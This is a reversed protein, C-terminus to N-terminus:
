AAHELRTSALANFSPALDALPRGGGTLSKLAAGLPVPPRGSLVRLQDARTSRAAYFREILPQPLTYFRELVRRREGPAAAGFLMRSLMRYFGRTRWAEAAYSRTARALAAGSTDTGLEPLAAVYRALRVADPLSYSTLPHVLAAHAGARAVPDDTPWFADFDGSAIVPLVGAEEGLVEDVQWGAQAAYADIRARLLPLDLTPSDAYYTDEVFVRRDDFPLCYVFRYGDHQEVAADMVIPRELGHPVVTRLMRGAFKQWGGAMAPLGPNGRVDIVGGARMITGDALTVQGAGAARVATGCCLAGAPLAARLAADLAEGTLSRYPTPLTRAHSPFRVDYGPWRAVTFADVLWRDGAAVDSDFCSWVHNGGAYPGAEFVRLTLDPRLKALALAILGGALGGGVIAIDPMAIDIDRPQM